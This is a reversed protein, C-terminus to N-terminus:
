VPIVSIINYNSFVNAVFYYKTYITQRYNLKSSEIKAIFPHSYSSNRVTKQVTLIHWLYELM